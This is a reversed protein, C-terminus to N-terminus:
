ARGGTQGRTSPSMVLLCRQLGGISHMRSVRGRQNAWASVCRGVRQQGSARCRFRATRWSWPPPPCCACLLSGFQRHCDYWQGKSVFSQRDQEGWHSASALKRKSSLLSRLTLLWKKSASVGACSSSKATKQIFMLSIRVSAYLLVMMMM